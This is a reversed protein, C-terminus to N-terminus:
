IQNKTILSKAKIIKGDGIKINQIITSSTGIFVNNCITVGGNCTVNPALHCSNGIQVDHDLINGTNIITHKGIKVDSQVITGPFIQVGELFKCSGNFIVSPDIIPPFYYELEKMKESLKWRDKLGPLAGVGNVLDYKSAPFENLLEEESIINFKMFKNKIIKTKGVFGLCEMKLRLLMNFLVKAHGGHGLIFVPKKKKKM